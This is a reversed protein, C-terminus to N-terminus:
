YAKDIKPESWPNCKLIRLFGKVSGKILGKKEISEKAYQSCSPYFKCYGNPYKGKFIPGHDPSLSAQYINILLIAFKSPYKTLKM